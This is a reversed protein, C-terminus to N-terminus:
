RNNWMVLSEPGWQTRCTFEPKIAHARLYKLLSASEEQTMGAITEVHAGTFLSERGTRSPHLGAPTRKPM